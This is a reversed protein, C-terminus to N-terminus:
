KLLALFTDQHTWCWKTGQNCIGDGGIPSGEGVGETGQPGMFPVALLLCGM